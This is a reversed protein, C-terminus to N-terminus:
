YGTTWPASLRGWNGSSICIYLYSADWTIQGQTCAASSAPSQTTTIISYGVSVTDTFYGKRWQASASGLSHSDDTIPIISNSFRFLNNGEYDFDFFTGTVASQFLVMGTIPSTYIQLVSGDGPYAVATDGSIRGWFAITTDLNQLTNQMVEGTVTNRTLMMDGGSAAPILLKKDFSTGLVGASTIHTILSDIVKLSDNATGTPTHWHCRISTDLASVRVFVVDDAGTGAYIEAYGEDGSGAGADYNAGSTSVYAGTSRSLSLLHTVQTTTDYVSLSIEGSDGNVSLSSLWVSDASFLGVDLSNGSFAFAGHTLFFAAGGRVDLPALPNTTGIGVNGNMVTFYLPNTSVAITNFGGDNVSWLVNGDTVNFNAPNVGTSQVSLVDSPAIVQLKTSPSVTGIGVNSNFIGIGNTMLSDDIQLGNGCRQNRLTNGITQSKYLSDVGVQSFISCAVLQLSCALILTKYKM